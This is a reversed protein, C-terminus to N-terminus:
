LGQGYAQLGRYRLIFRKLASGISVRFRDADWTSPVKLVLEFPTVPFDDALTLPGSSPASADASAEWRVPLPHFDDSSVLEVGAAYETGRLEVTIDENPGAEIMIFGHYGRTRAEKGLLNIEPTRSHGWHAGQLKRDPLSLELGVVDVIPFISVNLGQGLDPSRILEEVFHTLALSGRLDRHDFGALLALRLSEDHTHPGFYVFRPLHFHEGHSFVPGIPSGFVYASKQSLAYLTSLHEHFAFAPGSADATLQLAKPLSPHPLHFSKM